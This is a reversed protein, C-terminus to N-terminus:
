AKAGVTREYFRNAADALKNHFKLGLICLAIIVVGLIIMGVYSGSRLMGGFMVSAMVAPTRAVVSILFFALANMQSIGAAYAFLDKPIGPILFIIFILIYAKKSNLKDVFRGIREKGFILRMADRGLLKAIFYTLVTGVCLGIVCVAYAIWFNYAYGSAIQVAQAPIVSVVVQFAQLAAFLPLLMGGRNEILANVSEISKFEELIEPHRFYILLPIGVVIFILLLFKAIALITKFIKM